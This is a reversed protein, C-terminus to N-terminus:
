VNFWHRESQYIADIQELAPVYEYLIYKVQDGDFYSAEKGLDLNNVDIATATTVVIFSWASQAVANAVVANVYRTPSAWGTATLNGSGDLELSHTGGDLDMISRTTNDDPYIWLSVAKINRGIDGVDVVADSGNYRFIWIGTPLQILDPKATTMSGNHPRSSVDELVTAPPQVSGIYDRSKFAYGKVSM